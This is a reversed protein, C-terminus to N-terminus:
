RRRLNRELALYEHRSLERNGNGDARVFLQSVVRHDAAEDQSIVQDNNDDVAAFAPLRHAPPQSREFGPQDVTPKPLDALQASAETTMVIGALPILRHLFRQHILRRM